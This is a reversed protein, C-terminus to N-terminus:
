PQSLDRTHLLRPTSFVVRLNGGKHIWLNLEVCFGPYGKDGSAAHDCVVGFSRADRSVIYMTHISYNYTNDYVVFQSGGDEHILARLVKVVKGSEVLAIAELLQKEPGYNGFGGPPDFAIVVLTTDPANPLAKCAATGIGGGSENELGDEQKDQSVLKIDGVMAKVIEDDCPQEDAYAPPM